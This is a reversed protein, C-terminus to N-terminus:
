DDYACGSIDHVIVKQEGWDQSKADLRNGGCEILVAVGGGEGEVRLEGLTSGDEADGVVTDQAVFHSTEVARGVLISLAIGLVHTDGLELGGIGATGEGAPIFGSGLGGVGDGQGDGGLQNGEGVHRDGGLGLFTVLLGNDKLLGGDHRGVYTQPM